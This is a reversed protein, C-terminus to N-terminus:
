SSTDCTDSEDNSDLSQHKDFIKFKDLHKIKNLLRKKNATQHAKLLHFFKVMKSTLQKVFNVEPEGTSVGLKNKIRKRSSSFLADLLKFKREFHYAYKSLM